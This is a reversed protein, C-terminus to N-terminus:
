PLLPKSCQPVGGVAEARNLDGGSRDRLKCQSPERTERQHDGTAAIITNPM